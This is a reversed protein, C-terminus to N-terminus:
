EDGGPGRSTHADVVEWLSGVTTFTEETLAEDPLEVGLEDELEALLQVVGMSDLGLATLDDEAMLEGPEAYPLHPLLVEQFSRPIRTETEAM